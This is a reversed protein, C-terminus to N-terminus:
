CCGNLSQVKTDHKAVIMTSLKIALVEDEHRIAKTGGGLRPMLVQLVKMTM